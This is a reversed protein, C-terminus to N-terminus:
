PTSDKSNNTGSHPTALYPFVQHYPVDNAAINDGVVTITSYGPGSAIATLAIDVVDDGFRRGNPWGGSVGNTTDGGIFGLRDFGAQGALRVANTTTAVKLVEPIFIKELDARGTAVFSTGYVANILAALEPNRAYKAFQADQSAPTRNFRDKDAFAVLGETFLPNGLRSVQQWGGLNLRTGDSKRVTIRPRSVSAYVGVGTQQGFFVSDYPTPIDLAELKSLPIQMAVSLVNFGKFGDVGNGDQGLGDSLSGNNDLIRVNLLDFIGPIDSFFSDDRPGAWVVEGSNLGRITSSTYVDLDGPTTAGSVARGDADNYFPTVNKGVNPPPVLLNKGITHEGNATVKTVRFTQTFNQRADGVAMIPGVETGLGYSLITKRNKYGADVPSFSFDYRLKTVGNKPDTIHISYRADDAFREYQAGDGPESFPRFSMSVNLVKISPNDYQTGIFAYVDTLNAQPDQKILPADSHNSALVAPAAGLTSVAGLALMLGKRLSQGTDM